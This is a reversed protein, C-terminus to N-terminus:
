DWWWNQQTGAIAQERNSLVKDDLTATGLVAGPALDVGGSISIIYQNGKKVFSSRSSVTKPVHYSVVPLIEENSLLPFDHGVKDGLQPNRVIAAVIALDMLNRLEALVPLRKALEVYHESFRNAWDVAAPNADEVRELTGDENLYSDETMVKVGSSPLAFALGDVDRLPASYDPALWWRPMATKPVPVRASRLMQMYSPVRRTPSKELGMAIRKMIFDAAVMVRAFHSDAPVGTVTVSQSGVLKEMRRLAMEGMRPGASFYDQLRALGEASPDISCTIGSEHASHISRLVVLLDELQLVPSRTELGVVTGHEDLTWGGATGAVIVDNEEPNLFIFQVNQLGALMLMEEELPEGAKLREYIALELRRLSVKRLKSTVAVDAPVQSEVAQARAEALNGVADITARDLLGNADISVGGVAGNGVVPNIGVVFPRVQGSFISSQGRAEPRQTLGMCIVVLVIGVPRCLLLLRTRFNSM